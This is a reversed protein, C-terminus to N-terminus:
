PAEGLTVKCSHWYGAVDLRELYQVDLVFVNPTLVGPSFLWTKATSKFWALSESRKSELYVMARAIDARSGELAVEAIQASHGFGYAEVGQELRISGGAAGSLREVSVVYCGVPIYQGPSSYLSSLSSLPTIQAEMRGTFFTESGATISESDCDLVAQFATGTSIHPGFIDEGASPTVSVFAGAIKASQAAKFLSEITYISASLLVNTERGATNPGRDVARWSGSVDSWDINQIFTPSCSLVDVTFSVQGITIIM